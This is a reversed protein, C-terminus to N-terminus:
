VSYLPLKKGVSRSYRDTSEEDKFIPGIPRYTTGFIRYHIVETRQTIVWILASRMVSLKRGMYFVFIDVQYYFELFELDKRSSHLGTPTANLSCLRWYYSLLFTVLHRIKISDTDNTACVLPANFYALVGFSFKKARMVCAEGWGNM